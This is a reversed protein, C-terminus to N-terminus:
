LRYLCSLSPCVLLFARFQANVNQWIQNDSGGEYGPHEDPRRSLITCRLALDRFLFCTDFPNLKHSQNIPYELENRIRRLFIHLVSVTGPFSFTFSLLPRPIYNTGTMTFIQRVFMNVTRTILAAPFRHSSRRFIAM